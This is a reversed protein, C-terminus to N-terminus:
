RRRLWRHFFGRLGGRMVPADEHDGEKYSLPGEGYSLPGEGRGWREWLGIMYRALDSREKPTFEEEDEWETGLPGVHIYGDYGEAPDLRENISVLGGNSYFARGSDM